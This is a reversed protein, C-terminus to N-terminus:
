GAQEIIEEMRIGNHSEDYTCEGNKILIVQPSEHWVDFDEAIKNSINRYAILDLYYFDIHDPQESRELRSKAMSSISCRTSHKFIVQPRTASLKKIEELQEVSNLDIWRM